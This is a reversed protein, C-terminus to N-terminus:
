FNRYNELIIKLYNLQINAWNTKEGELQNFDLKM